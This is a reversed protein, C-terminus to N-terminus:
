NKPSDGIWKVQAPNRAVLRLFQVDPYGVTFALHALHDKPIKLSEKLEPSNEISHILFGNFCTGLGLVEAMLAMQMGALASDVEADPTSGRKVHIVILAPAHFFLQDEGEQWKRAIREWIVPYALQSAYKETLPEGLRRQREQAERIRAGQELTARITLSVVKDLNEKKNVVIFQCAQRNGGTPAFRGAEIIKQLKEIEVAKNKYNRLSRRGRLFRFFVDAPPIETAKLATEFEGEKLNALCPADSPCIAKCHGCSFCLGPDSIRVSNEGLELIHRVCVNVCLGCQNCRNEDITIM